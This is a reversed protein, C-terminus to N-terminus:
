GLAFQRLGEGMATLLIVTAIGVAIGLITLLSRQRQATVADWSFGVLDAGRVEADGRCRKSPM